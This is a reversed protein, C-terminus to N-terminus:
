IRRHHEHDGPVRIVAPGVLVIQREAHTARGHHLLIQLILPNLLRPQRRRTVPFFSWQTLRLILWTECLISAGLKLDGGAGGHQLSSDGSGPPARAEPTPPPFPSDPSWSRCEGTGPRVAPM